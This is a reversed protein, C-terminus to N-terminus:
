KENLTMDQNGNLVDSWVPFLGDIEKLREEIKPDIAKTNTRTFERVTSWLEGLRQVRCKQSRNQHRVLASIITYKRDCFQCQVEKKTRHYYARNYEKSNAKKKKRERDVVVNVVGEVIDDDDTPAGGQGQNSNNNNDTMNIKINNLAM